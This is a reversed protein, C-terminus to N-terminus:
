KSCGAQNNVVCGLKADDAYLVMNINKDDIVDFIDNIYM